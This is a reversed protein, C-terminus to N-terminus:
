RGRSGREDARRPYPQSGGRRPGGPRPGGPRPGRGRHEDRGRRDGRGREDRGDYRDPGRDANATPQLGPQAFRESWPDVPGRAHRALLRKLVMTAYAGRPLEFRLEVTWRAAHGPVREASMSADHPRLVLAREEGKLQFGPVDIRLQDAVLRHHALAEELHRRQTGDTVDELGEGPLRFTAENLDVGLEGAHFVLPGEVGDALRLEGFGVLEAIYSAVARNWLHSQFAYLHILRLRTSVHQFAGAFDDPHDRLHEFLSHHAGHRGAHERCEAWDGWDADVADKFARTRRDDRPSRATLLRRLAAETQGRILGKAIWGQGHVLNGFRQEDFYNVVGHRRVESLGRRLDALEDPEVARLRVRFANGRSRESTLHDDACGALAISLEPENVEVPRGGRVSMFQTTVGQRDKLGAFHVEARPVDALDALASAAELTTLKKKTVKYVRVPGRPQLFGEELLERVRFDGVEQKWRM